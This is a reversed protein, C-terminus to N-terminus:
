SLRGFLLGQDLVPKLRKNALEVYESSIESGIFKRDLQYAMKATTGSGMFSDYVIDGPNSWSLIHDRALAEPFQAPHGVGKQPPIYWWNNRKSIAAPIKRKEIRIEGNPHRRGPKSTYKRWASSLKKDKILNHTSISNKVFVFMYEFNQTYTKSSGVAGGGDKLWIMTDHLRFGVDMFGLAQRFSTGTESGNVTADAVIWVVVGGDKTIRFLEKSIAPFDFEYGNYDRLNDYPPSTVTLDVFGDDMRQMTDLCNECYISNMEIM